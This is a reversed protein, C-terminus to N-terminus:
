VEETRPDGSGVPMTPIAPSRPPAVWGPSWDNTDSGTVTPAPARRIGGGGRGRGRHPGVGPALAGRHRRARAVIFGLSLIINIHVDWFSALMKIGVYVLIVGLGKNLYVLKDQLGALLFYLARLGLIAFANSAFVIFQARSIALIAPISDVAFVVDTPEVM